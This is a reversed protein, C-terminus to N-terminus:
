VGDNVGEKVNVAVSVNVGVMVRVGIGVVIVGNGVLYYSLYGEKGLIM